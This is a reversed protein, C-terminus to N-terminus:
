RQGALFGVNIFIQVMPERKLEEDGRLQPHIKEKIGGKIRCVSDEVPFRFTKLGAM